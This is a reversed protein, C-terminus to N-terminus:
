IVSAILVIVLIVAFGIWAWKIRVQKNPDNLLYAILVGIPGLLFGLAFGGLHFGGGEAKTLLKEMKRNNLTGDANISERLQKQAIRFGIRDIFKMKQGTIKELDKAKIESLRLLSILQGNMGVPILVDSAYRPAVEPTETFSPVSAAYTTVIACVALLLTLIKKM